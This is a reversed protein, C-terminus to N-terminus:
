GRTYTLGNITSSGSIVKGRPWGISRGAVKESPETEFWRAFKPHVISRSYGVPLHLWFGHSRGGVEILPV